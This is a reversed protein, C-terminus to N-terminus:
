SPDVDVVPQQNRVPRPPPASVLRPSSMTSASMTYHGLLAHIQNATQTRAKASSRRAVRIARIAEVCGTRARPLATARGSAVATAANYADKPTSKGRHRRAAWYPCDVEFVALGAATLVRTLGAGYSGTGEVGIRAPHTHRVALGAVGPLWASVTTASEADALRRGMGDIIAAHHTDTPTDVGAYRAQVFGTLTTSHNLLFRSSAHHIGAIRGLRFVVLSLVRRDPERM